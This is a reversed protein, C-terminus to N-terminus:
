IVKSELFSGTKYGDWGLDEDVEGGTKISFTWNPLVIDEESMPLNFLEAVQKIKRLQDEPNETSVVTIIEDTIETVKVEMRIGGLNRIFKDYLQVDSLDIM